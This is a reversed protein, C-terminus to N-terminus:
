VFGCFLEDIANGKRKGRKKTSSKGILREQDVDIRRIVPTKPGEVRRDDDTPLEDLDDEFRRWAEGDERDVVEGFDEVKMGDVPGKQRREVTTQGEAIATGREREGCATLDHGVEIGEGERQTRSGLVTGLEGLCGVLVVGLQGFQKEAVLNSFSLWAGPLIIERLYTEKRAIRRKLVPTRAGVGVGGSVNWTSERELKKSAARSAKSLPVAPISNLAELESQDVLLKSIHRRLLSFWKYWTSRRHQNKNRHHLLHFVNSIQSLIERNTHPARPSPLKSSPSAHTSPSLAPEELAVISIRRRPKAQPM